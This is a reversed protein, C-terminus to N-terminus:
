IHILSLLLSLITRNNLSVTTFPNLGYEQQYALQLVEPAEAENMVAESAMEQKPASDEEGTPTPDQVQTEEKGSLFAGIKEMSFGSCGCLMTIALLLAALAPLRHKM